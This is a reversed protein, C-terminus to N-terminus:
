NIDSESTDIRFDKWTIFTPESNLKNKIFDKLRKLYNKRALLFIIKTNTTIPLSNIRSILNSLNEQSVLIDINDNNLSNDKKRIELPENIIDILFVGKDKLSVLYQKYETTDNPRRGFYHNFITAPISTDNEISTKRAPYKEPVNYFYSKGNPPPAEGILLAKITQPKYTQAIKEYDM